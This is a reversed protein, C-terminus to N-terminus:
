ELLDFTPTVIIYRYVCSSHNSQGLFYSARASSFCSSAEQNKLAYLGIKLTVGYVLIEFFMSQPADNTM